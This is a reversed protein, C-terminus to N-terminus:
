HACSAGQSRSQLIELARALVREPAIDPLCDSRSDRHDECGARGCPVCPLSGQLLSVNGVVQQGASRVFRIPQPAAAPWPAWRMPNTPGFLAIVDIGSAAALHSVSTDPGIYLSAQGFLTVLQNFDLRGSTDLLRPPPALGRLPAICEQDRAGGSGTLVVQRGAALLGRILAEFHAIPWQKYSWMSPAHVVVAGSKLQAQIDDPLPRAAPAIVPQALAAPDAWPRLLAQKELTVHAEGRDGAAVTVHQLLARKWWNSSSTEPLIGSRQGAALWGLINARDGVDTILA